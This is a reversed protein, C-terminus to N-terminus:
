NRITNNARFSMGVASLFGIIAVMSVTILVADYSVHEGITGALGPAFASGWVDGLVVVSAIVGFNERGLLEVTMVPRIISFLGYTGGAMIVFMTVFAISEEIALALSSFGISLLAILCISIMSFKRKTLPEITFLILRGLVQMPGICSAFIVTQSSSLGRSKLLPFIQSVIMGQSLGFTTLTILLGWFLSNIGLTRLITFLSEQSKSLGYTSGSEEISAGYWFLPVAVFCLIFSVFGVAYEWGYANSILTLIPYSISSAFGAVLTVMIIPTKADEKFVQMLYSFCPQYLCGAMGVGVLGWVFYFQWLSNVSPLLLISLGGGLVGGAMLQRSWGRDILRGVGIGTITSVILAVTFGISLDGLGWGFQAKWRLLFAPFM